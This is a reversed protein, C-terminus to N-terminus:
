WWPMCAVTSILIWDLGNRAVRKGAISFYRGSQGGSQRDVVAPAWRGATAWGCMAAMARLSEGGRAVLAGLLFMAEEVPPAAGRRCAASTSPNGASLFSPKAVPLRETGNTWCSSHVSQPAADSHM